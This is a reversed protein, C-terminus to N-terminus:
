IVLALCVCLHNAKPTLLFLGDSPVIISMRCCLSQSGSFVPWVGAKGSISYSHVGQCTSWSKKAEINAPSFSSLAVLEPTVTLMCHCLWYFDNWTFIVRIDTVIYSLWCVNSIHLEDRLKSGKLCSNKWCRTPTHPITHHPTPPM